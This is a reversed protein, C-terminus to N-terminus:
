SAPRVCRFGILFNTGGAERGVVALNGSPSGWSGGRVTHDGALAGRTCVPDLSAPASWCGEGYRELEDLAWEAVNGGLDRVGDRSADHEFTGVPVAGTGAASCEAASGLLAAPDLGAPPPNRAFAADACSPPREGWVYTREEGRGSAAFERQAESPLLRGGDFACLERAAAWTVCNMPLSPDATPGFHCLGDDFSTVYAGAPAFGMDLADRFRGVTVEYRDMYFPSIRVLREPAFNCAEGCSEQGRLTDGLFFVGGPICIEDDFRGATQARPAGSCPRPRAAEWTGVHSEPTATTPEVGLTPPADTRVVGDELACSTGDAPRASFGLCEGSLVVSLHVVGRDRIPGIDVIRDIAFVALPDDGAITGGDPQPPLGGPVLAAIRTSPYIRLRLRIPETETVVGFSLPWEAPDPAVRVRADIVAGDPGLREIRLTDAFTPIPLDTDVHVVAQPRAEASCAALVAVGLCLPSSLRATSRELV